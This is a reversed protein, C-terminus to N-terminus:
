SKSNKRFIKTKNEEGRLLRKINDRHKYVSVLCIAISFVAIYFSVKFIVAIVPFSILAILSALSVYSTIAFVVAWIIVTPLLAKPALGLAVGLTTAVGKGGRFRLFVPWIHGCIAAFGLMSRYFDYDLDIASSYFFGAVVTVVLYGKLIDVILTILAPIKGATRLVNTAGANRSGVSRIDIGRFVKTMIFSTPFSGILYSLAVSVTVAVLPNM